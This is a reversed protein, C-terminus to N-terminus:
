LTLPATETGSGALLLGGDITADLVENGIIGDTETINLNAEQVLIWNTGNWQMLQGTTTGVALKDLTIARNTIKESTVANNTLKSTSVANDIIKDETVADDALKADTVAGNGLKQTTIANDAITLT